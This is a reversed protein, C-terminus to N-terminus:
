HVKIDTKDILRHLKSITYLQEQKDYMDGNVGHNM